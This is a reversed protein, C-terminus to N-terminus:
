PRVGAPTVQYSFRLRSAYFMGRVFTFL